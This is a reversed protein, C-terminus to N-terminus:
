HAAIIILILAALGILIWLLDRDSMRGAAFDTQAKQARAALRALEADNLSSVAAEVQAPEIGASRLAKQAQPTSSLFGNLTELNQQRAGTAAVAEKQLDTPSVVHTQACLICPLCLLVTFVIGPIRQRLSLIMLIEELHLALTSPVASTASM